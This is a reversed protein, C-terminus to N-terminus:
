AVNSPLVSELTDVLFRLADISPLDQLENLKLHQFLAHAHEQGAGDALRLFREYGRAAAEMWKLADKQRNSNPIMRADYSYGARSLIESYVGAGLTDRFAEIRGTIRPDIPGKPESGHEMVVEPPLAWHPLVPYRKPWGRQDLDVWREPVRYLYRGLGFCSCARKFAQATASTVAMDGDAWEEGDGSHSGLRHITLVCNAVIKGINLERGGVIKTVNAITQLEYSRSWGSPTFLQNLRDTYARSDAFPMVKGRYGRRGRCVVRWKVETPPFPTELLTFLRRQEERSFKRSIPM